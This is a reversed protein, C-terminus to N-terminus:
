IRELLLHKFSNLGHYYQKNKNKYFILDHEKDIKTIEIIENNIKGKFKDGVQM